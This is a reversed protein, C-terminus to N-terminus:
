FFKLVEFFSKPIPPLLGASVFLKEVSSSMLAGNGIWYKARDFDLYTEKVIPESLNQYKIEKPKAQYSGKLFFNLIKFSNVL